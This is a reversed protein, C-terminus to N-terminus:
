TPFHLSFNEKLFRDLASVSEPPLSPNEAFLRPSHILNLRHLAWKIRLPPNPRILANFTRLKQSEKLLLINEAPDEPLALSANVVSKWQQPFLNAGSSLLGSSSPQNLFNKEEGDYILFHRSLRIARQYAIARRLDGTYIMGVIQENESLRHLIATRINQRKLTQGLQAILQPHNYLLIPFPTRNKWGDYFHSLKRNSHYWLPIDVWFLSGSPSKQAAASTAMELNRLTEEETSATPSLFLPKKGYFRDIAGHLIELRKPNPLFLGEGIRGEGIFLADAFPISKEALRELSSWDIEGRDDFPTVLALILGRPPYLPM